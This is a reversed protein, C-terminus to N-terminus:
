RWGGFRVKMGRVRADDRAQRLVEEDSDRRLEIGRRGVLYGVATATRAAQPIDPRVRVAAERGDSAALQYTAAGLIVKGIGGGQADPTVACSMVEGRGDGVPTNIAYAIVEGDRELVGTWGAAEIRALTAAEGDTWEGYAAGEIAVIADADDPQARRMTLGEPIEPPVVDRLGPHVLELWEGMEQFDCEALLNEIWRRNIHEVLDITVYPFGSGGIRERLADFCPHWAATLAELDDFAYHLHLQGRERVIAMEGIDTEVVEAADSDLLAEWEDISRPANRTQLADGLQGGTRPQTM